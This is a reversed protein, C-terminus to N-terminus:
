LMGPSKGVAFVAVFIRGYGASILSECCCDVTAGTTYIDDVLLITSAPRVEGVVGHFAGKLERRRDTKGLNKLRKTDSTRFLIDTSMPVGTLVSLESGMVASQNYGRIRWRRKSVPVPIIVDIERLMEEPLCDYMIRALHKGIYRQDNYKFAMILKKATEVYEVCAVGRVHHNEKKLCESCAEYDSIEPLRRGCYRCVKGWIFNMDSYCDPCLAYDMLKHYESGCGICVIDEPYLLDLLGELCKRLFAM